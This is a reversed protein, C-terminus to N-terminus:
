YEESSYSEDIKGQWNDSSDPFPLMGHKGVCLLLDSFVHVDTGLFEGVPPELLSTHKWKGSNWEQKLNFGLVQQEAHLHDPLRAHVPRSPSQGSSQGSHKQIRRGEEELFIVAWMCDNMFMSLFDTTSQSLSRDKFKGFKSCLKQQFNHKLDAEFSVSVSSIWRPIWRFQQHAKRRDCRAAGLEPYCKQCESAIPLSWTSSRSMQDADQIKPSNGQTRLPDRRAEKAPSPVESKVFIRWSIKWQRKSQLPQSTLFAEEGNQGRPKASFFSVIVSNSNTHLHTTMLHFLHTLSCRHIKVQLKFRDRGRRNIVGPCTEELGSTSVESLSPFLCGGRNALRHDGFCGIRVFYFYSDTLASHSLTVTWVERRNGPFQFNCALSFVVVYVLFSPQRFWKKCCTVRHKHHRGFFTNSNLGPQLDGIVGVKIRSGIMTSSGNRPHLRVQQLISKGDLELTFRTTTSRPVKMTSRPVKLNNDIIKDHKTHQISPILEKAPVKRM